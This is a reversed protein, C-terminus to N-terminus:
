LSQLLHYHCPLYQLLLTLGEQAEWFASCIMVVLQPAFYCELVAFDALKWCCCCRQHVELSSAYKQLLQSVSPQLLHVGDEEVDVTKLAAAAAM